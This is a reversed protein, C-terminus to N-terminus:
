YDFQVSEIEDKFTDFMKYIEEFQDETTMEDWGEPPLGEIKVHKLKPFYTYTRDKLM